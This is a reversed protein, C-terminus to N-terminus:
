GGGKCVCSHGVKIDAGILPCSQLIVDTHIKLLLSVYLVVESDDGMEWDARCELGVGTTAEDFGNRGSLMVDNFVCGHAERALVERGRAPKLLQM